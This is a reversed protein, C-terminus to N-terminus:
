LSAENENSLYAGLPPIPINFERAAAESDAVFQKVIVHVLSVLADPKTQMVSNSVPHINFSYRKRSMPVMFKTVCKSKIHIMRMRAKFKSYPVVHFTITSREAGWMCLSLKYEEIFTMIERKHKNKIITVTPSKREALVIMRSKDDVGPRGFCVGLIVSCTEVGCGYASCLVNHMLKLPGKNGKKSM